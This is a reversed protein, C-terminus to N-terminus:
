FDRMDTGDGGAKWTDLRDRHKGLREARRNWFYALTFRNTAFVFACVICLFGFLHLGTAAHRSRADIAILLMGLPVGQLLALLAVRLTSLAEEPDPRLFGFPWWQGESDTLHNFVGEADVLLAEMGQRLNRFRRFRSLMYPGNSVHRGGM